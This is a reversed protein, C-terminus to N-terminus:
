ALNLDKSLREVIDSVSFPKLILGSGGLKKVENETMDVDGTCLYFHPPSSLTSIFKLVEIGKAQPMNADCLVVNVENNKLYQM